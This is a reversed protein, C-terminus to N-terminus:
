QAAHAGITLGANSDYTLQIRGNADRFRPVENAPVYIWNRSADNPVLYTKNHLVGQNCANQAVFTITRAAAGNNSTQIVIPGNLPFSDGAVGAAVLAPEAGGASPPASLNLSAM